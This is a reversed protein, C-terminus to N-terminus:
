FGLAGVHSVFHGSDGSDDSDGDDSGFNFKLGNSASVGRPTVTVLASHGYHGSPVTVAIRTSTWSSVKAGVTGFRVVGSTGFGTGVLTVKTGIKGHNPSLSGLLLSTVPPTTTTTVPPTTTTTTVPPTTTTTTPPPTTTTTVPPTTTTTPPPTTVVPAVTISYVKSGVQASGDTPGQNTWVTYSYTGAAAPATMTATFSLQSGTNGGFTSGTGATVPVIGYGTNGGNPNAVLTIAVTYTAGAKPATTSPAATTVGATAPNHCGACSSARPTAQAAMPNITAVLLAGAVGTTLVVIKPITKRKLSYIKL